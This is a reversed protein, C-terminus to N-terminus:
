CWPSWAPPDGHPKGEGCTRDIGNLAYPEVSQAEWHALRAGLRRVDQPQASALNRVEAPDATLNYLQAKSLSTTSRWFCDVILKLEGVIIAAQPGSIISQAGKADPGCAAINVPLETRPSASGGQELVAMLDFGDLPLNRETSGGALAVLTPLWDSSHFLGHHWEGGVKLNLPAWWVFAPSRVGGEFVWHKWGTFPFNSGGGGGHPPSGSGAPPRSSGRYQAAAFIAEHKDDDEWMAAAFPAGNDPTFLIFTKDAQGTAELAASLNGVADDLASVMAARTRQSGKLSPYRALCDDPAELPSHVSQMALYMFWPRHQHRTVFDVAAASLLLSSYTGSDRVEAVSDNYHWDIGELREHTWYDQAGLYYGLQEDFGRQLPLAWPKHLGLHWKGFAATRYGADKLNNALTVEKRPLAWADQPWIVTNQLGYRLVHRGTLLTARTPSCVPQVHHNGLRLGQNALSTLHPTKVVRQSGTYGNDAFGMDDSVMMVINPKSAHALTLAFLLARPAVILTAIM